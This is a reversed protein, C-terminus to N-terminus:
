PETTKMTTWHCGSQVSTKPNSIDERNQVTLTQQNCHKMAMHYKEFNEATKFTLSGTHSLLVCSEPSQTHPNAANRRFVCKGEM